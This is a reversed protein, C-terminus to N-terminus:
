AHPRHYSAEWRVTVRYVYQGGDWTLARAYEIATPLYPLPVSTDEWEPEANVIHWEKTKRQLIIVPGNM